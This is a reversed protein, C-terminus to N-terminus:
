DPSGFLVVRYGRYAVAGGPIKFGGAGTDAICWGAERIASREDPSGFRVVNYGRYAVAGGPIKFGGAGTDAIRWG